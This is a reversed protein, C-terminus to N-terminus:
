LFPSEPTLRRAVQIFHTPFFSVLDDGLPLELFSRSRRVERFVECPRCLSASLLLYNAIPEAACPLTVSASLATRVNHSTFEAELGFDEFHKEIEKRVLPRMM